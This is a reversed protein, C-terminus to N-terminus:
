LSSLYSRNKKSLKPNFRIHYNLGFVLNLYSLDAFDSIFNVGGYINLYNRKGKELGDTTILSMTLSATNFEVEENNVEM